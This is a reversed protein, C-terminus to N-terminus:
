TRSSAAGNKTDAMRVKVGRLFMCTTEGMKVVQGDQELYRKWFGELSTRKSSQEGTEAQESKQTGSMCITASFLDNFQVGQANEVKTSHVSGTKCSCKQWWLAIEAQKCPPMTLCMRHWSPKGRFVQPTSAIPNPLEPATDDIFTRGALSHAFGTSLDLFPNLRAEVASTKHAQDCQLYETTTKDALATSTPPLTRLFMQHQLAVSETITDLWRSCVRQNIFLDKLDLHSLIQELLETTALAKEQAARSAMVAPLAAPM